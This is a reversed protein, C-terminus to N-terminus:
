APAHTHEPARAPHSRAPALGAGAHERGPVIARTATMHRRATMGTAPVTIVSEGRALAARARLYARAESFDPHREPRRFTMWMPIGYWAGFFLAALALSALVLPTM